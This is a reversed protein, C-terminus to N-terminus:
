GFRSLRDRAWMKWNAALGEMSQMRELESRTANHHSIFEVLRIFPFDSNPREDLHVADGPAIGGPELVRYYWGSRGNRVMAKPMMKDEFRLALKFCPQRPQCVQLRSSGIRHIDGVYLDSECMGKVCLNEGFGGPVLVAAHRPIEIRWASYNELSYGYVAKELGGHVSLDAQEDGAIGLPTIQAPQDLSNKVFGSPVADPGLPAIKGIHISAIRPLKMPVSSVALNWQIVQKRASRLKTEPSGVFLIEV